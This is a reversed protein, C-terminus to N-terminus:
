MIGAGIKDSSSGLAKAEAQLEEMIMEVEISYLQFVPNLKELVKSYFFVAGYVSGLKAELLEKGIDLYNDRYKPREGDIVEYYILGLLKDINQNAQGKSTFTSIATYQGTNLKTVDTPTWYKKGNITIEQELKESPKSSLLLDIRKSLKEFEDLAMRVTVDNYNLGTFYMILQVKMEVRDHKYAAETSKVEIFQKVTLDDYYLPIGM